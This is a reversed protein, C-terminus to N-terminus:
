SLQAALTIQKPDEIGFILGALDQEELEGFNVLLIRHPVSYGGKHHVLYWSFFSNGEFCFLKNLDQMLAM